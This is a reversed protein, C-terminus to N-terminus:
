VLFAKATKLGEMGAIIKGSSSPFEFGMAKAM